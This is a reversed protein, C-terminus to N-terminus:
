NKEKNKTLTTGYNGIGNLRNIIQLGLVERYHYPDYFNRTDGNYQNSKNFKYVTGFINVLEKDISGFKKILEPHGKLAMIAQNQMPTIFVYLKFNNKISLEKIKRLTGFVKNEVIFSDNIM